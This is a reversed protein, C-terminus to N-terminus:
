YSEKDDDGLPLRRGSSSFGDLLPFAFKRLVSARAPSARRYLVDRRTMGVEGDLPLEVRSWRIWRPRQQRSTRRWSRPWANVPSLRRLLTPSYICCSSRTRSRSSHIRRVFRSSRFTLEFRTSNSRLSLTGHIRYPM